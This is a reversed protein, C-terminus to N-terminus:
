GDAGSGPAGTEFVPWGIDTRWADQDPSDTPGTLYYERLPGDVAIARSTVYAALTGYALDIDAHPGVHIVTALEAEPVDLASVRSSRAAPTAGNSSPTPRASRRVRRVPLM